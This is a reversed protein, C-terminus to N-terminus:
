AGGTSVDPESSGSGNDTVVEFAGDLDTLRLRIPVIEGDAAKVECPLIQGIEVVVRKSCRVGAVPEGAIREVVPVAAEAYTSGPAVARAVDWHYDIESGEVNNVEGEIQLTVGASNSGKCRIASGEVDEVDACSFGRLALGTRDEYAQEIQETVRETGSPGGASVSFSCGALALAALACFLAPLLATPRTV